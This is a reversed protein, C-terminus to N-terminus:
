EATPTIVKRTEKKEASSRQVPPTNPPFDPGSKPYHQAAPSTTEFDDEDDDFIHASISPFPNPPNHWDYAVPSWNDIAKEDLVDREIQSTRQPVAGPPNYRGPIVPDSIKAAAIEEASEKSLEDLTKRDPDGYDEPVTYAVGIPKGDITVPDKHKPVLMKDQAPMLGLDSLEQQFEFKSIYDNLAHGLMLIDDLDLTDVNFKIYEHVQYRLKQEFIGSYNAIDAESGETNKFMSYVDNLVIERFANFKKEVDM